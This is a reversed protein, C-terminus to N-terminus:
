QVAFINPALTTQVVFKTGPDAAVGVIGGGGTVVSGDSGGMIIFM